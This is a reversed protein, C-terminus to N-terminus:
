DLLTLIFTFMDEIVPIAMILLMIKGITDVLMGLAEAGADKLLLHFFDILYSVGIMKFIIGVYHSQISTMSIFTEFLGFLEALPDIIYLYIFIVAMIGLLFSFLPAQEKLLTRFMHIIIIFLILRLWDM